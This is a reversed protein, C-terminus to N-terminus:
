APTIDKTKIQLLPLTYQLCLLRNPPAPRGTRKKM